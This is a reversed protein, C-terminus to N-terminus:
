IVEFLDWSYNEYRNIEDELQSFSMLHTVNPLEHFINDTEFWSQDDLRYGFFPTLKVAFRICIM